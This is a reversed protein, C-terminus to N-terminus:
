SGGAIILATIFLWAHHWSQDLAYAGTGCPAAARDGFRYFGDKGLAHALRALTVAQDAPRDTHPAARDAWYHSVADIVLAVAVAVPALALGTVAVLAALALAKTAALTAVHATCARRGAWGPGGKACAQGHTQVWHDGVSHAAYLAAFTAAFTAGTM